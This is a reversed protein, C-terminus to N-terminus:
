ALRMSDMRDLERKVMKAIERSHERLLGALDEDSEQGTFNPAYNITVAAGGGTGGGTGPGTGPRTAQSLEPSLRDRVGGALNETESFANPAARRLGESFTDILGPGTASLTSLPGMKADSGPLLARVQSAMNQAASLAAGIRSTIGAGFSSALSAGAARAIASIDLSAAVQSMFAAVRGPIAAFRAEVESVFGSVAAAGDAFANAVFGSVQSWAAAAGSTIQGWVSAVEGVMGMLSAAIEFAMQDAAAVAGEIMGRIGAGVAAWDIATLTDWLWRFVFGLALGAAVVAAMTAVLPLAAVAFGSLGVAATAAAIKILAFIKIIVQIATIVKAIVILLPGLTAAVAAIAIATQTIEPNARAFEAMKQIVPSLGELLQNIAPLVASGIEIHFETLANKALQMQSATTQAMIEFSDAMAVGGGGEVEGVLKLAKHFEDLGGAAKLIQPTFGSGVIDSVAKGAEPGTDRVAQLFDMYAETGEGALFRKEMDEASIGLAKFGKQADSSLSTAQALNSATSNFARSAVEAPEGLATFGAGLAAVQNESFGYVSAIGAMRQTSDLVQAETTAMNGALTNVTDGFQRMRAFDVAGADDVMQFSNAIQKASDGVKSSEIDFAVSMESALQVFEGISERAIGLRAAKGALGALENQSKPITRSMTQIENGLDALEEGSYGSVKAIDAMASEFGIAQKVSLGLGAVIPTTIGATMIGGLEGFQKSIGGSMEKITSQIDELTRTANDVGEFVLEVTAGM